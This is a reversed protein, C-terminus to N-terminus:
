ITGDTITTVEGGVVNLVAAVDSDAPALEDSIEIIPVTDYLEKLTAALEDNFNQSKARKRHFPKGFFLTLTNNDPDYRYDCKELLSHASPRDQNITQLLVDDWVFDKIALGTSQTDTSNNEAVNVDGSNTPKTQSASKITTINDAKVADTSKPSDSKAPSIQEADIAKDAPKSTVIKEPKPPRQPPQAKSESTNSKASGTLNFGILVSLLKADPMGSKAVDLLSGIMTYFDPRQDTIAREGLRKILQEALATPSTGDAIIGDVDNIVGAYDGTIAADILQDVQDSSVLGLVSNVMAVTIKDGGSLQDLLTISDRVSGGGSKAILLLADDDVKIKEQDAISRLHSTLLEAPLPKFHFRQVRSLITAPVKQLETTALIFVVYEPPEEITKLLANFAPKSLMHFEDIIYVKHSCGMPALQVSDRIERVDDVGNNSAADIEIIDVNDSNINDDYNLGNILHALIRAVTTKGTGRQGTFLYAHAFSNAAASAALIDTVQPQGVVQDLTTPRYKRYLALKMNGSGAKEGRAKTGEGKTMPINYCRDSTQM